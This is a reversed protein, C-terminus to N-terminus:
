NPVKSIIILSYLYICLKSTNNGTCFRIYDHVLIHITCQNGVANLKLIVTGLYM